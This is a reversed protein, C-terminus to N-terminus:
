FWPSSLQERMKPCGLLFLLFLCDGTMFLCALCEESPRASMMQPKGECDARGSFSASGSVFPSLTDGLTM